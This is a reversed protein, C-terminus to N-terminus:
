FSERERAKKTTRKAALAAEAKRKKNVVKGWGFNVMDHMRNNLSGVSSRPNADTWPQAEPALPPKMESRVNISYNVWKRYPEKKMFAEEQKKMQRVAEACIFM